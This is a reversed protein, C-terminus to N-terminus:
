TEKQHGFVVPKSLDLVFSLCRLYIVCNGKRNELRIRVGRFEGKSRAILLHFQGTLYRFFHDLNRLHKRNM